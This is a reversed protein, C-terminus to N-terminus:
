DWDGEPDDKLVANIEELTMKTELALEFFEVTGLDGSEFAAILEEKSMKM